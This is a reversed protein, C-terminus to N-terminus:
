LMFATFYVPGPALASSAGKEKAQERQYQYKKV